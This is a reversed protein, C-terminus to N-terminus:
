AAEKTALLAPGVHGGQRAPHTNRVGFRCVRDKACGWVQAGLMLSLESYKSAGSVIRLLFVAPCAM